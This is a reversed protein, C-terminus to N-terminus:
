NSDYRGLTQLKMIQHKPNPNNLVSSGSVINEAEIINIINENIGGDICLIFNKRFNLKNIEKIKELGDLDFQQGSSGPEKITLLLLYKIHKIFNIVESLDTKMTLALGPKKGAQKIIKFLKLIDEKSEFHVFIVDVHPLIKKIWKSPEYSMIHAQIQKNPWYAKMTEIKHTRVENSKENMTKDIIDIHIFDPYQEIMNHIKHIDELDNAYIAVGVKKFNKFSLKRHIFYVFLFLIGSIALRSLEYSLSKFLFKEVLIWQIVASISSVLVFYFLAIDRKNRPIKFNFNVNTWFALIVGFIWGFVTSFLINFNFELLFSRIIIEFIISTFGFIIYLALFRIKYFFLRLKAEIFPNLLKIIKKGKGTILMIGM